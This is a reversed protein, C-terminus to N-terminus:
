ASPPAIKLQHLYILLDSRHQSFNDSLNDSFENIDVQEHLDDLDIVQAPLLKYDPSYSKTKVPLDVPINIKIYNMESDCCEHGSEKDEMDCAQQGSDCCTTAEQQCCDTKEVFLTTKVTDTCNCHHEVITFGTTTIFVVLAMFFSLLKHIYTGM